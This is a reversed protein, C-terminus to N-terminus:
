LSKKNKLEKRDVMIIAKNGIYRIPFKKMEELQEAEYKGYAFGSQVDITELEKNQFAFYVNYKTVGSVTSREHKLYVGTSEDGTKRIIYARIDMVSGLALAIWLGIGIAGFVIPFVWLWLETKKSVFGKVVAKGGLYIVQVPQEDYVGAANDAYAIGKERLFWEPYISKTKYTVQEGDADVYSLILRYYRENNTERGNTTTRTNVNNEAGIIVATTEDGKKLIEAAEKPPKIVWFYVGAGTGAFVFGCFLMLLFGVTARVFDFREVLPILAITLLLLVGIGGFIAVPLWTKWDISQPEFDKLVAKDGVYLVQVTTKAAEYKSNGHHYEAIGQAKIFSLPYISKTERTISKGESNVFSLKLWFYREGERSLNGGIDVLTATTEVGKQRVSNADLSPKILAFFLLAGIGVFLCGFILPFMM